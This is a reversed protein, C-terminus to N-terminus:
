IVDVLGPRAVSMVMRAGLVEAAPTLTELVHYSASQTGSQVTWQLLRDTQESRLLCNSYLHTPHCLLQFAVEQKPREQILKGREMLGDNCIDPTLTNLTSRKITSCNFSDHPSHKHSLFIDLIEM